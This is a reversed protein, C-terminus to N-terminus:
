KPSSGGSPILAGIKVRQTQKEENEKALDIGYRDIKKIRWHNVQDGERLWKGSIAVREGKLSRMYGEVSVAQSASSISQSSFVYFEPANLSQPLVYTPLTIPLSQSLFTLRLHACFGEKPSCSTIMIKDVCPVGLCVKELAWLFKLVVEETDGQIELLVSLTPEKSPHLTVNTIGALIAIASINEELLTPSIKQLRTVMGKFPSRDPDFLASLVHLQKEVCRYQTLEELSVKVKQQHTREYGKSGYLLPISLGCLCFSLGFYRILYRISNGNLLM